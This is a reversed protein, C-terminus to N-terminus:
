EALKAAILDHFVTVTYDAEYDTIFEAVSKINENVSCSDAWSQMSALHGDADRAEAIWGLQRVEKTTTLHVPKPDKM